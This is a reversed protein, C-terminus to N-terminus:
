RLRAFLARITVDLTSAAGVSSYASRYTLPAPRPGPGPEPREVRGKAGTEAEYLVVCRNAFAFVTEEDPGVPNQVRCRGSAAPERLFAAVTGAITDAAVLNRRQEGDSKLVIRGTQVLERPFSFPILSWRKFRALVPPLGYVACPRLILVDAGRLEAERRFIQEAAYHAVAYDGLPNAPRAETIDGILPGYVHASSIYVHRKVGAKRAADLLSATHVTSRAWAAAPHKFEEDTIGAAHVLADCGAFIEARLSAPDALDLRVADAESRGCRRARGGLAAAIAAGILGSGGTLAITM